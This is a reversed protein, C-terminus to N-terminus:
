KATAAKDFVECLKRTMERATYPAFAAWDTAPHVVMSRQGSVESKQSRVESNQDALGGTKLIRESIDEASEGNRFTAVTGAKTKNIIDVVSSSEHFVALLPKRALIYPYLKSATYGPDNSGPIFLADADLLCQLAEFYPIRDTQESVMDALGAEIALPEVTKTARGKSAYSTGVFHIQLEKRFEPKAKLVVNLARFFSRLATGMDAGGRGVYVWHRLGDHPDFINQRVPNARLFDYDAEAAGFPLATFRDDPLEPYRRQFMKPYEPSVCVIHAADRVVPPELRRARWQAFGYKLRGGPPQQETHTKYYDSRWPDQFDLVYPIGFKGRWIPGFAMTPFVTTSFFVLDFQEQRLLKEGAHKLYRGARYALSGVGFRRTWKASLADAWVVRLDSPLMQALLPDHFGEVQVPNVALVTPEWGFEKFLPLAMRVRQHDPANVPPFHPSIVLLRNLIL